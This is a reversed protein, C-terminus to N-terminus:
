SEQHNTDPAQSAFHVEISAFLLIILLLPYTTCVAAINEAFFLLWGMIVLGGYGREWDIKGAVQVKSNKVSDEKKNNAKNGANTKPTIM